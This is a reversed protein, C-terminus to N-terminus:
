FSIKEVNPKKRRRAFLVIVAAILIVLPFVVYEILFLDSPSKKVRFEGKLGAIEINYTGLNEKLIKFKVETSEGGSLTITKVTEISGNIKLVVDYSGRERGVNTVLVTVTVEEGPNVEAPYIQLNTVRFDVLPAIPLMYSIEWRGPFLSLTIRNGETDISIPVENLFIIEADEPLMVTLNYPSELALTWIGAEM